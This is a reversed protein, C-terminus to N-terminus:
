LTHTM